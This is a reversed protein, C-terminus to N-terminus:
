AFRQQDALSVRMAEAQEIARARCCHLAQRSKLLEPQEALENGAGVHVAAVQRKAGPQPQAGHEVDTAYAGIRSTSSGSLSNTGASGTGACCCAQSLAAREAPNNQCAALWGALIPADALVKAGGARLACALDASRQGPKSSRM